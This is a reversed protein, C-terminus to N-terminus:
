VGRDDSPLLSKNWANININIFNTDTIDAYVEPQADAM